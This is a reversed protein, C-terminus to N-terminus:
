QEIEEVDEKNCIELLDYLKDELESRMFLYRKIDELEYKVFNQENIRDSNYARVLIDIIKSETEKILQNIAKQM